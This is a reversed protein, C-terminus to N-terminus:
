GASRRTLRYSVEVERFPNELLLKNEIGLLYKKFFSDIYYNLIEVMKTRNINGFMPLIKYIASSLLYSIDIFDYHRAGKIKILYSDDSNSLHFYKCSNGFRWSFLYMFPTSLHNNNSVIEGLPEGDLNIGCVFRNDQFCVQAATAGGYSHGFVGFGNSLDLKGEFMSKITGNNLEQMKDAIFITDDAWINLHEHSVKNPHMKYTIKKMEDLNDEKDLTKLLKKYKRWSIEKSQNYISLKKDFKIQTGDPYSVVGAEYPHGVSVVIYGNSALNEMQITNQALYGEYGHNFFIVRFKENKMSLPINQFSNSEIKSLYSPLFRYIGFKQYIKLEKASIVPLHPQESTKIDSPYWILIPINRKEHLRKSFVGIRSSDIFNMSTRGIQYPGSPTPLYKIKKM